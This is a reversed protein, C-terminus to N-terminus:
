RRITIALTRGVVPLFEFNLNIMLYCIILDVPSFLLFTIFSENPRLIQHFRVINLSVTLANAANHKDAHIFPFRQLYATTFCFGFGKLSARGAAAL